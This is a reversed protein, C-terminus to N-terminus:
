RATISSFGRLDALLITVDHAVGDARPINVRGMAGSLVKELRSRANAPLAVGTEEAVIEHIRRMADHFHPDKM